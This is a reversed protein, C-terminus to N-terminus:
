FLIFKLIQPKWLTTTERTLPNWTKVGALWRFLGSSWFGWLLIERKNINEVSLPIHVDKKHCLYALFPKFLFSMFYGILKSHKLQHCVVIWCIVTKFMTSGGTVHFSCTEMSAARLLCLMNAVIFRRWMIRTYVTCCTPYMCIYVIEFLTGTFFDSVLLNNNYIGDNLVM